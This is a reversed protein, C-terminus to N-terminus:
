WNGLADFFDSLSNQVRNKLEQVPNIWGNYAVTLMGGHSRGRETAYTCGNYVTESSEALGGRPYGPLFLFKSM